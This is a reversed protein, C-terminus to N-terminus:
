QKYEQRENNRHTIDNQKRQQFIRVNTLHNLNYHFTSQLKRNKVYM